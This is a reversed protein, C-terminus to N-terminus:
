LSELWAEAEEWACGQAVKRRGRAVAAPANMAMVGALRGTEDDRFCAVYRRGAQKALMQQSPAGCLQLKHDYQDSWFYPISSWAQPDAGLVGLDAAINAGAVAGQETAAQWQEVRVHQGTLANVWRSVDGAAYVGAVSTRGGSDCVVGDEVRVGSGALWDTRPAAGVGVVVVDAGIRSVGAATRVVVGTVTDTGEIDVLSIGCRVEVGREQHLDTVIRGATVGLVRTLATPQAELVVVELGADRATAAVELGIFGAGVVVLRRAGAMSGILADADARTRLYHVGRLRSGWPLRRAAAGTAVLLAQYALRNGDGLTLVRREPDLRDAVAGSRLVVDLERLEGARALSLDAVGIQGSLYQKSLPPRDYPEGTEEWVVTVSGAYGVERLSRAAGIGAPGAGVIVVGPGM